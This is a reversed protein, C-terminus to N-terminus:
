LGIVFKVGIESSISIGFMSVIFGFSGILVMCFSILRVLFFGM